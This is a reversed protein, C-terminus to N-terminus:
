RELFIIRNDSTSQARDASECQRRTEEFESGAKEFIANAADREQLLADRQSRVEGYEATLVSIRAKRELLSDASADRSGGFVIGEASIFEGALTAAACDSGHKKFSLAAKLDRFIAVNHLLRAVLPALSDPAKVKDIAWALGKKPLVPSHAKPASGCLQPL